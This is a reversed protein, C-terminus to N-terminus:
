PVCIDTYDTCCDGYETCLDDCYCNGSSKTGCFKMDIEMCQGYLDAKGIPGRDEVVTEEQPVDTTDAVCGQLMALALLNVVLFATKRLM